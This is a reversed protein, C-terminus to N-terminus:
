RSTLTYGHVVGAHKFFMEVFPYSPDGPVYMKDEEVKEPDKRTSASTHYKEALRKWSVQKTIWEVGREWM